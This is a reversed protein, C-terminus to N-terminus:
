IAARLLYTMVDPFDRKAGLYEMVARHLWGISRYYRSATVARRVQRWVEEMANLQPAYSPLYIPVLDPHDAFYKLVPGYRAHQSANDMILVSRPNKRHLDKVFELFSPGDFKDYTHFLRRGKVSIAGFVAFRERKFGYKVVPRRGIRSWLNRGRGPESAFIAEDQVFIDFGIGRYASVRRMMADREALIEAAPRRDKHVKVATKSSMRCERMWRCATSVHVHVDLETRLAEMMEKSASFERDIFVRRVARLPAKRPRGPPPVDALAPIGGEKLRELWNYVSQETKCVMKAAYAVTQGSRVMRVAVLRLQVRPDREGRLAEALDSDIVEAM